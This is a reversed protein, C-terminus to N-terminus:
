PKGLTPYFWLAKNIHNFFLYSKFIAAVQHQPDSAQFSALQSPSPDRPCRTLREEDKHLGM